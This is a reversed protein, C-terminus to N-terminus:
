EKLEPNHGWFHGTGIGHIGYVASVASRHSQNHAAAQPDNGPYFRPFGALMQM